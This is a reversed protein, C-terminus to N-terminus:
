RSREDLKRYFLQLMRVSLRSAGLSYKHNICGMSLHEDESPRKGRFVEYKHHKSMGRFVPERVAHLDIIEKENIYVRVRIM